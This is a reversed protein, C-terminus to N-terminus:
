GRAKKLRKNEDRLKMNEDVLYGVKRQREFWVGFVFGLVGLGIGGISLIMPIHEVAM